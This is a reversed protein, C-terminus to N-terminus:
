LVKENKGEKKSGVVFNTTSKIMNKQEETMNSNDVIREIENKAEESSIQKIEMGELEEINKSFLLPFPINLKQSILYAMEVPISHIGNEWRSINAASTGVKKALENMSINRKERVYKLNKLFTGYSEM